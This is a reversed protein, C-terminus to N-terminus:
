LTLARMKYRFAHTLAIALADAADDPQPVSRLKLTLAVMKGVQKKDAKGDGCVTQKVVLPTYSAIPIGAISATLLIVGRAQCVSIATKANTAFFLEEISIADPKHLIILQKLETHIIKLREALIKSEPQISGYAVSKPQGSAIEIVAWGTIATGPDIGLIKM